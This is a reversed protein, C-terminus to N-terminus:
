YPLSSRDLVFPSSEAAPVTGSSVSMLKVFSTIRNGLFVYTRSALTSSDAPRFASKAKSSCLIM